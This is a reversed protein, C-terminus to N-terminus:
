ALVLEREETRALQQERWRREGYEDVDRREREQALHQAYAQEDHLEELTKGHFMWEHADALKAVDDPRNLNVSFRRLGERLTQVPRDVRQGIYATEETELNRVCLIARNEERIKANAVWVELAGSHGHPVIRHDEWVQERTALRPVGIWARSGDRSREVPYLRALQPALRMEYLETTPADELKETLRACAQQRNGNFVRGQWETLGDTALKNQEVELMHETVHGWRKQLEFEDLTRHPHPIARLAEELSDAEGARGVWLTTGDQAQVSVVIRTERGAIEWRAAELVYRQGDREVITTGLPNIVIDARRQVSPIGVSVHRGDASERVSGM